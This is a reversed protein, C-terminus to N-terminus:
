AHKHLMKTDPASKVGAGKMAAHFEPDAFHGQIAELSPAEGHITVLNANDPASYVGHVQLGHRARIPAAADFAKKWTAFDAVEHTTISHVPTPNAM